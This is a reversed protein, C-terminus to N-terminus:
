IPDSLSNPLSLLHNIKFPEISWGMKCVFVLDFAAAPCNILLVKCFIKKVKMLKKNRANANEQM